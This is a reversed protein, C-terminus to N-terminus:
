RKVLAEMTTQGDLELRIQEPRQRMGVANGLSPMPARCWPCREAHYPADRGCWNCKRTM